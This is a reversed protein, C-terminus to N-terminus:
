EDDVQFDGDIRSVDQTRIYEIIAEDTVVGSSAVFVGAGLPAPGLVAQESPQVAAVAEAVDEGQDAADPLEGVGAAPV